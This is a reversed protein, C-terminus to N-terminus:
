PGIDHGARRLANVAESRDLYIQSVAVKGDRFTLVTAVDNDITIGSSPGSARVRVYVLVQDGADFYREPMVAFDPFTEYVREYFKRVGDRGYYTGPEVSREDQRWEVDEHLFALFAPVGEDAFAQFAATAREVNEQSM